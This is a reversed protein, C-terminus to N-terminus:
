KRQMRVEFLVRECWNMMSAFGVMRQMRVEFLVRECGNAM